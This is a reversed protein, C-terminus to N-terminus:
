ITEASGRCSSAAGGRGKKKFWQTLHLGDKGQKHADHSPSTQAPSKLMDLLQAAM